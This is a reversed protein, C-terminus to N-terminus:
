RAAPRGPLALAAWALAARPRVHSVHTLAPVWARRAAEKGPDL